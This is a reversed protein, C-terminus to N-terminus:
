ISIWVLVSVPFKATYVTKVELEGLKEPNGM